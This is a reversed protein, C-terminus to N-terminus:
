KSGHKTELYLELRQKVLGVLYHKEILYGECLIEELKFEKKDWLSIMFVKSGKVLYTRISYEIKGIKVSYNIGMVEKEDYKNPSTVKFGKFSLKVIEDIMKFIKEKSMEKDTSPTVARMITKYIGDLLSMEVLLDKRINHTDEKKDLGLENASADKIEKANKKKVAKVYPKEPEKFGWNTFLYDMDPDPVQPTPREDLENIIDKPKEEVPLPKLGLLKELEDM